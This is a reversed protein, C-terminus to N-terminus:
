LLVALVVIAALGSLAGVLQLLPSPRPTQEAADLLTLSRTEEHFADFSSPM